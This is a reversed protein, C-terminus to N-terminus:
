AADENLIAWIFGAMERAVATVATQREKRNAIKWFKHHLRKEAKEAIQAVERSQTRRQERVRKCAGPKSMQHWSAEILIWRVHSNGAKTISGTCRREGSSRETPVLGVYSMLQGPSAFRRCDGIESLLVMASYLGIGKLCLLKQVKSRYPEANALREIQGDIERQRELCHEVEDLYSRLISGQLSELPLSRLWQWHKQTWTNGELFVYGLTRVYKLARNKARVIDKTVDERLRVMARVDEEERSPVRVEQLLGARYLTALQKADRKDTKVRNGPAKPILSPALVVCSVGVSDLWRKIVFGAGSAEYCLRLEGLKSWKRVAKLVLARDNSLQDLLVEGTDECILCATISEKHVDLGGYVMSSM